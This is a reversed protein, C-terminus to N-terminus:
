RGEPKALPLHSAVEVEGGGGLLCDGRDEAVLGGDRVPAPVAVRAAVPVVEVASRQLIRTYLPLDVVVAGREISQRQQTVVPLMRAVSIHQPNPVSADATGQAIYLLVATTRRTEM